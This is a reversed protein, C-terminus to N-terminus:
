LPETDTRVSTLASHYHCNSGIELALECISQPLTSADAPGSPVFLFDGHLFAYNSQEDDQREDDEYRGGQDAPKGLFADIFIEIPCGGFAAFEGYRGRSEIAAPKRGLALMADLDPLALKVGQQRLRAAGQGHEDNIRVEIM